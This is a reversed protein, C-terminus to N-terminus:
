LERIMVRKFYGDGISETEVDENNALELHIVRRDAPHMPRLTKPRGQDAVQSAVRRALERLEDERDEQYNDCDVRCHVIHGVDSHLLRPLLHQMARLVQGDDEVAAPEDEGHLEIEIGDRGSWIDAALELRALECLRKVWVKAAAVAEPSAAHDENDRDSGAAPAQRRGRGSRSPKRAPEPEGPEPETPETDELGSDEVGPEVATEAEQPEEALEEAVPAAEEQDAHHELVEGESAPASNPGDALEEAEVLMTGPQEEDTAAEPEDAAVVPAAPAAPPVPPTPPAAEAQELRPSNPDVKLVVGRRARVFGQRKVEQYALEAPPVGHHRAAKAIAQELNTASFYTRNSM